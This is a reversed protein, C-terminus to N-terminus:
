GVRMMCMCEVYEELMERTLKINLLSQLYKKEEKMRQIAQETLAGLEKKRLCCSRIQNSIETKVIEQLKFEKIKGKHM